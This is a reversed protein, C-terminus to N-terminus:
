LRAAGCDPRFVGRLHQRELSGSLKGDITGRGGAGAIGVAADGSATTTQYETSGMDVLGQENSVTAIALQGVNQTQGNSYTAAIV